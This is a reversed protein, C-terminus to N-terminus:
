GQFPSYLQFDEILYKRTASHVGGGEASSYFGYEHQDDQRQDTHSRDGDGARDAYQHYNKTWAPELIEDIADIGVLGPLAPIVIGYGSSGIFEAEIM